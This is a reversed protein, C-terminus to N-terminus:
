LGSAEMTGLLSAVGVGILALIVGWVILGAVCAIFCGILPNLQKEPLRVVIQSEAALDVYERCGCLSFVPGDPGPDEAVDRCPVGHPGHFCVRCQDDSLLSM